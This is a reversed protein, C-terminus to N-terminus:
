LFHSCPAPTISESSRVISIEIASVFAFVTSSTVIYWAKQIGAESVLALEILTNYSAAFHYVDLGPLHEAEEEVPLNYAHTIVRSTEGPAVNVMITITMYGREQRYVLGGRYAGPQIPLFQSM